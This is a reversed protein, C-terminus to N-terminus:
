VVEREKLQWRLLRIETKLEKIAESQGDKYGEVYGNKYGKSHIAWHSSGITFELNSLTNHSKVGDKHHILEWSQLLRGLHRAMVLRHELIYGNNNSMPFYYDEAPLKVHIYGAPDTYKGGKWVSSAQGRQTKSTCTACRLRRPRNEKVCFPVWHEKGCDPCAAWIHTCSKRLSFNSGYRTEGLVPPKTIITRTSERRIHLQEAKLHVANVTRGMERSLTLTDKKPYNKTLYQIEKGSWKNM